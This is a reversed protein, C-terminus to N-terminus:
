NWRIPIRIARLNDSIQGVVITRFNKAIEGKDSKHKMQIMEGELKNKANKRVEKVMIGLNM